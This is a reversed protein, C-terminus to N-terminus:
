HPSLHDHLDDGLADELFRRFRKRIDMELQRVREKSIGFHAGLEKLEEPEVAVMRRQWISQRRPDPLSDHFASALNALQQRLLRESTAEYPSDLHGPLLDVRRTDSHDDFAPADLYVIGGDMLAGLRHVEEEDVELHEAVHSATPELGKRALARRAKKLNFFLKRSDRSSGMRVPRSMTLLHNMIMARIWFHAYGVFPTGRDPDFRVLAECLGLNGEQILEMLDLNARHADRAIKIVLRLNAWILTKGAEVDGRVYARALEDQVDRSLLEIRRIQNMYTTLSDESLTAAARSHSRLRTLSPFNSPFAETPLVCPVAM